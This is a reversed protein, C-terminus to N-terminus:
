HKKWVEKGGVMTWEVKADKIKAAAIKFLDDSIM